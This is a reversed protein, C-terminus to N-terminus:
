ADAERTTGRVGLEALALLIAGGLLWPVLPSPRRTDDRLASAPAAGTGSGALSVILASDALKDSADVGCPTLLGRAMRQFPPHLPLDGAAPLAIGVHRICGSGARSEVAAPTGDAWRALARGESIPARGLAAVIVEEDFLVGQATARVNSSADWRVVTGGSQAFASDSSSVAGRVLRTIAGTTVRSRMRLAPGLPDEASLPRELRWATDAAERLPVRDLRIVGPWARRLRMTASDMSSAALPSVLVLQLSDVGAALDASARRAAALAASVSSAAGSRPAAVLSDLM